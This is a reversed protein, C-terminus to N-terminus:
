ARVFWIGSLMTACMMLSSPAAANPPVIRNATPEAMQLRNLPFTYNRMVGLIFLVAAFALKGAFGLRCFSLAWEKSPASWSGVRLPLSFAPQKSYKSATHCLHTMGCESHPM